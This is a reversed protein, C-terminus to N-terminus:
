LSEKDLIKGSRYVHTTFDVLHEENIYPKLHAICGQLRKFEFNAAGVEPRKSFTRRLRYVSTDAQAEV